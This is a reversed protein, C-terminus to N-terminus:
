GRDEAGRPFPPPTSLLAGAAMRRLRLISDAPSLGMPCVATCQAQGHCRFVGDESFLAEWRAWVGGADRSDAAVSFARNLAAPGPFAPNTGVISCASLCAGCGICEVAGDIAAGRAV